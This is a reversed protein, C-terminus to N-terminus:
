NNIHIILSKITLEKKSLSLDRVTRVYYGYKETRKPIIDTSPEFTVNSSKSFKRFMQSHSLTGGHTASGKLCTYKKSSKNNAIFIM